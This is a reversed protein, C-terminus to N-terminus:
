SAPRRPSGAKIILYGEKDTGVLGDRLLRGAARKFAKKSLGLLDRLDDPSSRDSLRPAPERALVRLITEGDNELEEHAMGRLSLEIKRDPYVRSVRFRAREGRELRHPESQPVLGLFGREVIVFLGLAPDVRWAEGMVWEGVTFDGGDQLLERIRMTACMRGTNDVFVGVALRDGERVERTQERFPLLLEKPLGWDLFAGIPTVATVELFGVDDRRLYPARLTAIPRDESDLSVFVELTDGVATEPPVEARPLLYTASSDASLDESLFAGPDGLRRVVLPRIRGLLDEIPM